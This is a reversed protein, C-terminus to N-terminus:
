RAPSYTIEAASWAIVLDSLVGAIEAPSDIDAVTRVGVRLLVKRTEDSPLVGLIPMGAKLYGFLKAGAFLEYGRM